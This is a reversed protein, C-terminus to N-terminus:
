KDEIEKIKKQLELIQDELKKVEPSILRTVGVEIKVIKKTKHDIFEGSGIQVSVTEKSFEDFWCMYSDATIVRDVGSEKLYEKVDCMHIYTIYEIKLEKKEKEVTEYQIEEIIINSDKCILKKKGDSHLIEDGDSLYYQIQYCTIEDIFSLKCNNTVFSDIKKDRLYTYLNEDNFDFMNMYRFNFSKKLLTKNEIKKLLLTINSMAQSINLSDLEYSIIITVKKHKDDILIKPTKDSADDKYFSFGITMKFQKEFYSGLEDCVYKKVHKEIEDFELNHSCQCLITTVDDITLKLSGMKMTHDKSWEVRCKKGPNLFELFSDFM